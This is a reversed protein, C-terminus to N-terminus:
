VFNGISTRRCNLNEQPYSVRYCVGKSTRSRRNSSRSLLARELALLVAHLFIINSCIEPGLQEKVAKVNWVKPKKTNKKVEPQLFINHSDLSAHYCLLILPDADEGVLATDMLTASEAAKETCHACRCRKSCSVSPM